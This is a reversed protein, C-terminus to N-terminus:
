ADSPTTFSWGDEIRVMLVREKEASEHTPQHKVPRTFKLGAFMPTRKAASAHSDMKTKATYM